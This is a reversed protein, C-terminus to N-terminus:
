SVSELFGSSLWTFASTREEVNHPRCHPFFFFRSGLFHSGLLLTWLTPHGWVSGKEGWGCELFLSYPEGLFRWRSPLTSFWSAPLGPLGPTGGEGAEGLFQLCLHSSLLSVLSCPPSVVRFARGSHKQLLFSYQVFKGIWDLRNQWVTFFNNRWRGRSSSSIWGSGRCLACLSVIQDKWGGCAKSGSVVDHPNSNWM